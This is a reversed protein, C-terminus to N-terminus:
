NNIDTPKGLARVLSRQFQAFPPPNPQVEDAGERLFQAHLEPHASLVVTPIQRTDKALKLMTNSEEQSFDADIVVLDITEDLITRAIHVDPVTVVEANGFISRIMRTITTRHHSDHSLLLVSLGPFKAVLKDIMAGLADDVDVFEIGLGVPGADNPHERLWSVRGEVTVTGANPVSFHLTVPTGVPALAVTELFIGGRSLNVSYAALMSSPTRFKVRVAYPIRQYERDDM